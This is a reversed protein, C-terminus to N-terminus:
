NGAPKPEEKKEGPKVEPKTEKQPEEKKIDLKPAEKAELVGDITHIVGNSAALDTKTVNVKDNLTVKGDKVTVTIAGDALPKLEKAKSVDAAMMKGSVVHHKLFDVLKAKNEPKKLDDLKAKDMKKFAEDTPAFVTFPGKGKLTEVLNAQILLESLTAFKNELLTDVIDKGQEKQPEAPKVEPKKMEPKPEEQPKNAPEQAAVWGSFALALVAVCLGRSMRGFM